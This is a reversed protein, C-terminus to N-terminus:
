SKKLLNYENKFKQEYLLGLINCNKIYNLENIKNFKAPRQIKVVLEAKSYLESLKSSIKAGSKKYDNDTYSSKLGADKQIFVKFGMKLLSPVCDPTIGVRNEGDYIETPVVLKM